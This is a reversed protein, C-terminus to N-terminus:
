FAIKAQLVCIYQCYKRFTKSFTWFRGFRLPYRGGKNGHIKSGVCHHNRLFACMKLFAAISHLLSFNNSISLKNTKKFDTSLIVDARPLVIKFTGFNPTFEINRCYNFNGRIVIWFWNSFNRLKNILILHIVFVNQLAPM